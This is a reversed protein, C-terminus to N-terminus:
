SASASARAYRSHEAGSQEERSREARSQEARSQEARSQEARSQEARSQKARNERLPAATELERRDGYDHNKDRYFIRLHEWIKEMWEGPVRHLRARREGLRPLTAGGKLERACVCM